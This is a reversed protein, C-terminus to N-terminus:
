RNNVKHSSSKALFSGLELSRSPSSQSWLFPYWKHPPHQAFYWVRLVRPEWAVLSFSLHLSTFHRTEPRPNYGGSRESGSAQARLRWCLLSLSTQGLPPVSPTVAIEPSPSLFALFFLHSPKSFGELLPPMQDPGNCFPNTTTEQTLHRQIRWTYVWVQNGKAESAQSFPRPLKVGTILWIEAGKQAAQQSESDSKQARFSAPLLIQAHGM